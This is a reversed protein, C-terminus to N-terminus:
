QPTVSSAVLLTGTEIFHIQFKNYKKLCCPSSIGLGKKPETKKWLSIERLPLQSFYELSPAIHLWLLERGEAIKKQKGLMKIKKKQMYNKM